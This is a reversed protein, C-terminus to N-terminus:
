LAAKEGMCEAYIGATKKLDIEENEPAHERGVIRWDEGIIYAGNDGNDRDASKCTERYVSGQIFGRATQEFMALAKLPAREINKCRMRVACVQLFAEVSARGGNWHLYICPDADKMKGRVMIVARNGM